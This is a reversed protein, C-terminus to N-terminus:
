IQSKITNEILVELHRLQSLVYEFEDDKGLALVTELKNWYRYWELFFETSMREELANISGELSNVLWRLNIKHRRYDDILTLMTNFNRITTEEM